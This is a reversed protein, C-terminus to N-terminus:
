VYVVVLDAIRHLIELIYGCTICVSPDAGTRLCLCWLFKFGRTM